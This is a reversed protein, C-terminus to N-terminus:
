NGRCFSPTLGEWAAGLEHGSVCVCRNVQPSPSRVTVHQRASWQTGCTWSPAGPGRLPLPTNPPPSSPLSARGAWGKSQVWLHAQRGWRGGTAWKGHATITGDAHRPVTSFTLNGIRPGRFLRRSDTLGWLYGCFAACTCPGM